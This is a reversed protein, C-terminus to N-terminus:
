TCALLASLKRILRFLSVSIPLKRDSLLLKTGSLTRLVITIQSVVFSSSKLTQSSYRQLIAALDGRFRM